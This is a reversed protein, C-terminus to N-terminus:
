KKNSRAPFCCSQLWFENLQREMKANEHGVKLDIFCYKCYPKFDAFKLVKDTWGEEAQFMKECEDCWAQDGEEMDFPFNLNLYRNMLLHQCILAPEDLKKLRAITEQESM